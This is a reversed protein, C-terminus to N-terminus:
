DGTHICGLAQNGMKMSQAQLMNITFPMETQRFITIWITKNQRTKQLQQERKKRYFSHQFLTPFQEELYFHEKHFFLYSKSKLFHMVWTPQLFLM